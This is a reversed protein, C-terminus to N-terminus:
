APRPGGDPAAPSGSRQGSFDVAIVVQRDTRARILGAREAASLGGWVGYPERVTLAHARCEELVPCGRCVRKALAEREARASGREREPLFFLSSRMGRCSGRMQWDWVDTVPVPLRRIDAM